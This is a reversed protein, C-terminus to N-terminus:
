IKGLEARASEITMGQGSAYTTFLDPREIKIAAYAAAYTEGTKAQRARIALDLLGAVNNHDVAGAGATPKATQPVGGAIMTEPQTLGKPTAM